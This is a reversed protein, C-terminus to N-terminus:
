VNALCSARGDASACVDAELDAAGEENHALTIARDLDEIIDDADEIGVSVRILGDTIGVALRQERPVDAHTMSVPHTLLTEVSGLHEVLSCLRANNLVRAGAQAGGVVEFSLIGGHLVREGVKAHQRLALDHQPHTSLGPYNVASVLPNSALWEAIRQANQSHRELRLPLTSLGRGTLFAQFAAQISGTCKRIFRVREVLQEDRSVVSGGIATSHGEIHKTTSYVTIDAGLDLPRQLVPTLFTNDVALLVGANNTIRAVAAIDTLKLTPNAPTEIFVLRTRPTIARAVNAPDSTDVFTGSIGLESLLQRVLRVTGGYIADGCVVHDGARLTALFLATEAALGTGFCVAPAANEIAGLRRELETVTPNSVRSYAHGKNIGVQDQVYTTSQVIPTVLSGHVPDCSRGGHVAITSSFSSM